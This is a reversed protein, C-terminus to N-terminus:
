CANPTTDATSTNLSKFDGNPRSSIAISTKGSKDSKDLAIAHDGDEDATLGLVYNCEENQFFVLGAISNPSPAEFSVNVSASFTAGKNWRLLASPNGKSYISVDRSDIEPGPNGSAASRYWAVNPTRIQFWMPDIEDTAFEDIIPYAAQQAHGRVASPTQLSLPIEKGKELIIPQRADGEGIRGDPADDNNLIWATKDDEFFFSPDIGDVPVKITESWGLRPDKSKLM